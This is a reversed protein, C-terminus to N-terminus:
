IFFGVLKYLGLIILILPPLLKFKDNKYFIKFRSLITGLYILIAHMSAIIVPVYFDNIGMLSLSMNAFAGDLGVGIGIIVSQKLIGKTNKIEGDKKVLNFIGIIILIIGGLSATKESLFGSCLKASYNTILCFIFVTLAVGLIIPYKKKGLLSLSFGCFFSDISVTFATLLLFPIM